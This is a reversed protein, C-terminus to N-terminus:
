APNELSLGLVGGALVALLDSRNLAVCGETPTYSDRALHLFIASGAGPRTPADNWGLVGIVDYTADDRWLREHSAAHPLMVFRNYVPDAPADCWGANEALPAVPVACAPAPLRDPRYFVRRLALLGAPTAGDGERKAAAHVVGSRGLACRYAIGGFHLFGTSAGPADARVVAVRNM